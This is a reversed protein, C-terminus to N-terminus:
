EPEGTLVTRPVANTLLKLLRAPEPGSQGPLRRALTALDAPRDVDSWAPADLVPLSETAARDRVQRLERGSSWDIGFTLTALRVGPPVGMCWFGGDDCPGLVLGRDEALLSAATLLHREPVDPSDAGLFLMAREGRADAYECALRRGLDGTNQPHFAVGLDGYKRAAREGEEPPDFCLVVEDFGAARRLAVLRELTHRLLVAHVDAAQQYSLPPVLRTKVRGAAPLKGMVVATVDM